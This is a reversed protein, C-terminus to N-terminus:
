SSRYARGLYLAFGGTYAPNAYHGALVGTSWVVGDGSKHLVLTNAANEFLSGLVITGM